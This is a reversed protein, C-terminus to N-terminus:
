SHAIRKVLGEYSLAMPLTDCNRWLAVDNARTRSSLPLSTLARSRDNALGRSAQDSHLDAGTPFEQACPCRPRSRKREIPREARRKQRHGTRRPLASPHALLCPKAPAARCGDGSSARASAQVPKASSCNHWSRAAVGGRSRRRSAATVASIRLRLWWPPARSPLNCGGLRVYGNTPKATSSTAVAPSTALAM